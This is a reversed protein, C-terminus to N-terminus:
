SITSIKNMPVREHNVEIPLTVFYISSPYVKSGSMRRLEKYVVNTTLAGSPIMNNLDFQIASPVRPTIKDISSHISDIEILISKICLFMNVLEGSFLNWSRLQATPRYCIGRPWNILIIITHMEFSM